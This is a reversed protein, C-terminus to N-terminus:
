LGPGHTGAIALPFADGRAHKQQHQKKAKKLFFVRDPNRPSPDLPVLENPNPIGATAPFFARSCISAAPDFNNPLNFYYIKLLQTTGRLNHKQGGYRYFRTHPLLLRPKGQTTIEDSIEKCLIYIYPRERKREKGREKEKEWSGAKQIRRHLLRVVAGWVSIGGYDL